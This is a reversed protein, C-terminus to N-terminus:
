QWVNPGGFANIKPVLGRGYIILEGWAGQWMEVLFCVILGYYTDNILIMKAETTKLISLNEKCNSKFPTVLIFFPM